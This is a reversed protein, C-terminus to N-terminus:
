IWGKRFALLMANTRDNVDLKRLITTVHNKVTKDSIELNLAIRDNNNGKAIEILIDWERDTLLGEPRAQLTNAIRVYEEHLLKALEPYVYTYGSKIFEIGSIIDKELMSHYFYGDFEMEFLRTVHAMDIDSIVIAVSTPLPNYEKILQESDKHDKIMVILFDTKTLEDETMHFLEVPTKVYIALNTIQSLTSSNFHYAQGNTTPAMSM